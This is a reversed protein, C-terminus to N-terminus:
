QHGTGSDDRKGGATLTIVPEGLRGVTSVAQIGYKVKIVDLFQTLNTRRIVGGFRLETIAPDAVNIAVGNYREMDEALELLSENRFSVQGHRWAQLESLQEPTLVGCRVVAGAPAEHIQVEGRVTLELDSGCTKLTPSITPAQVRVRGDFVTVRTDATGRHVMFDTGFDDIRNPGAWVVWHRRPDHRIHFMAQGWLVRVVPGTPGLRLDVSTSVDLDIRSGDPLLVTQRHMPDTSFLFPSPAHIRTPPFFLLSAPFFFLPAVILALRLASLGLRLVRKGSISPLVSHPARVWSQAYACADRWRRKSETVETGNRRSGKRHRARVEDNLVFINNGGVKDDDGCDSM